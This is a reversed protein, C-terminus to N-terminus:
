SDQELRRRLNGMADVHSMDPNKELFDGLQEIAGTMHLRFNGLRLKIYEDNIRRNHLSLEIFQREFSTRLLSELRGPHTSAKDHKRIASELYARDAEFTMGPPVNDNQWGPVDAIFLPHQVASPLPCM